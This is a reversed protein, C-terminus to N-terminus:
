EHGDQSNIGNQWKNRKDWKKSELIRDWKAM